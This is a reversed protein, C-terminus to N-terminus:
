PDIRVCFTVITSQSPTLPGVTASITGTNGDGPSTISGVTTAPAGCSNRQRTNAPINDNVVVLTINAASTNTGTIRYAICQGPATAPGAPIAGTNYGAFPGPAACSVAVQEKVLVLGDTVSTTDTASTTQTGANYGATLTTVNTDPATAAAPVFV